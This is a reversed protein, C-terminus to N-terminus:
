EITWTVNVNRRSNSPDNTIITIQRSYKGAPMPKGDMMTSVFVKIEAKKDNKATAKVPTVEVFDFGSYARRVILANRGANHIFFSKRFKKGAALTGFDITNELEAIPASSLQEETLSSFDEAVDAKINIEFEETISKVGNVVAYLKAEVPGYLKCEKTDFTIVFKGTEQPKLTKLTTQTYLFKDADRVALEVNIEHDTHNAYEIERTQVDGKKMSGFNIARSKLRLDGMQITYEEKPKAPKPIVEGKIKLFVQGEKSNSTVTIQKNFPGPRNQPNYTATIQGTQGPEIPEKPWKPTTCGCSARVNSLVLPEMGENKFEFVTTVKGDAENIKGFDHEKKEFTILQAMASMTSCLIAATFLFKKM